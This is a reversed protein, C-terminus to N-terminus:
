HPRSDSCPPQGRINAPETDRDDALLARLERFDLYKGLSRMWIRAFYALVLNLAAVGALAVPWGLSDSVAYAFALMTLLWASAVLVAIAVALEILLIVTSLALHFEAAALEATASAAARYGRLMSQFRASEPQESGVGPHDLDGDM